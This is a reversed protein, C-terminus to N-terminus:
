NVQYDFRRTALGLSITALPAVDSICQADFKKDDFKIFKMPDYVQVPLKLDKQFLPRVGNILAGGGSLIVRKVRRSTQEEFAEMVSEIENLIPDFSEVIIDVAAKQDIQEPLHGRKLADAEKYPLDFRSQLKETCKQGGIKLDRTFYSFGQDILHIHTFSNGLDALIVTGLQKLDASLGVANMMAFIDLDMIVPKLGVDMLVEMRSEIIERQVAVLIMEMQNAEPKKDADGASNEETTHVSNQIDGPYRLVQFDMNVDDIDFPIYQEAEKQIRDELEEQSMAPFKLRKITVAEGAVSGVAFRTKIGEAKILQSLVNAVEDFDKIFGDVIAEPKLPLVGFNELEFQGKLQKLQALKISHSGIDVAVLPVENSLSM